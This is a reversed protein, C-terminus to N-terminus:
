WVRAQAYFYFKHVDGLVGSALCCINRHSLAAELEADAPLPLEASAGWVDSLILSLVDTTAVIGPGRWVSVM